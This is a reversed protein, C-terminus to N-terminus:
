QHKVIIVPAELHHVVFDSVSGLGVFSMIASCPPTPHLNPLSNASTLM